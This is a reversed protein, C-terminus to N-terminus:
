APCCISSQYNLYLVFPDGCDTIVPCKFIYEVILTRAVLVVLLFFIIGCIVLILYFEREEDTQANVAMRTNKDIYFPSGLFIKISRKIDDSPM